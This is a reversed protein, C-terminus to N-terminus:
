VQDYEINIIGATSNAIDQFADASLQLTGKCESSCYDVIKVVISDTNTNNLCPNQSTQNTGSLCRVSYQRGCAAGNDWIADSAGAFLNGAPFQKQNDGYCKSPVYPPSYSTATGVDAFCRYIAYVSWLITIARMEIVMAM